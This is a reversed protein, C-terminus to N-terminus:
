RAACRSRGVDSSRLRVAGLRGSSEGAHLEDGARARLADHQGGPDLRQALRGGQKRRRRLGHRHDQDQRGAQRFQGSFGVGDRAVGVEQNLPIRVRATYFKNGWYDGVRPVLGGQREYGDILVYDGPDSFEILPAAQSRCDPGCADFDVPPMLGATCVSSCDDGDDTNGDDCEETLLDLRGNGCVAEPVECGDASAQCTGPTGCFDWWEETRLGTEFADNFVREDWRRTVEASDVVINVERSNDWAYNDMNASGVIAVQDDISMYKGHLAGDSGYVPGDGLSFWRIDLHECVLDRWEQVDSDSPQFVENYLRETGELVVSCPLPLGPAIPCGVYKTVSPLSWDEKLPDESYFWEACEQNTKCPCLVAGGACHHPQALNHIFDNHFGKALVMEVDVERRIADVIALRAEKDNFNPTLIRIRGPEDGHEGANAFAAFFAQNQTNDNDERPLGQSPRTTIMMPLCEGEPTLEDSVDGCSPGEEECVRPIPLGNDGDTEPYCEGPLAECLAWRDFEPRENWEVLQDAAEKHYYNADRWAEVFEAQLGCAADGEICAAPEKRFSHQVNAGTVFATRGDIVATKAHYNGFLDHDHIGITFDLCELDFIGEDEFYRGFWELAEVHNTGLACYGIEIGLSNTANGLFRVEVVRHENCARENLERLAGLIMPMPHGPLPDVEGTVEGDSGCESLTQWAYAQLLVQKQASAIAAAIDKFIEATGIPPVSASDSFTESGVAIDLATRNGATYFFRDHADGLGSYDAAQAAEYIADMLDSSCDNPDIGSTPLTDGGGGGCDGSGLSLMCAACLLVRSVWQSRVM